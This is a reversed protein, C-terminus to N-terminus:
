LKYGLFLTPETITGFKREYDTFAAIHGEKDAQSGYGVGYTGSNVAVCVYAAPYQKQLKSKLRKIRTLCQEWNKHKTNFDSM